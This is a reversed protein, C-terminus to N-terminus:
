AIPGTDLPETRPLFFGKICREDRVCIQIHSKAHFGAGAYLPEGEVFMARVSDYPAARTATHNQHLYEIVACDLRRVIRDKSAGTNTNEPLPLGIRSLEEVLANHSQRVLELSRQELLNLCHGLDIVAGLAFPRRIIPGDKRPHAAQFRAWELARAYNGEWFYFGHGLWDHDNESRRMPLTGAIIREGIRQDCGHFGIVFAPLRTYM